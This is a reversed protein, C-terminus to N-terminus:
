YYGTQTTFMLTSVRFIKVGIFIISTLEAWFCPSHFNLFVRRMGLEFNSNEEFFLKSYVVVLFTALRSTHSSHFELLFKHTYVDPGSECLPAQLKQTNVHPGLGLIAAPHKCKSGAWHVM